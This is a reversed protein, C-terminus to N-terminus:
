SLAARASRSRMNLDEISGQQLRRRCRYRAVAYESPDVSDYNYARRVHKFEPLGRGDGCCVESVSKALRASVWDAARL